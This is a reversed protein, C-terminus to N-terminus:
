KSYVAVDCKPALGAGLVFAKATEGTAVADSLSKTHDTVVALRTRLLRGDKYFALVITDGNTSVTSFDATLTGGVEALGITPVEKLPVTVYHYETVALDGTDTTVFIEELTLTAGHFDEGATVTVDVIKEKAADTKSLGGIVSIMYREGIRDVNISSNAPTVQEITLGEFNPLYFCYGDYTGSLSVTFTFSEGAKVGDAADTETYLFAQPETPDPKSAETLKVAAYETKIVALDGTDTTVFVEDLSLTAGTFAESATVTVDVIKTKEADVKSLGGIVSIMYRGGLLDVNVDNAPTVAVITM